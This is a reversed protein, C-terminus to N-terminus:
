HCLSEVFRHRRSPGRVAFEPYFNVPHLFIVSIFLKEPNFSLSLSLSPSIFSTAGWWKKPSYTFCQFSILFNLTFNLNHTIYAVRGWGWPNPNEHSTTKKNTLINQILGRWKLFFSLFVISREELSRWKSSIPAQYM